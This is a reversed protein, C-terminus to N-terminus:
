PTDVNEPEDSLKAYRCQQGQHGRRCISSRRNSRVRRGTLILEASAVELPLRDVAHAALLGRRPVSALIKGKRLLEPRRAVAQPAADLGGLVLVEDEPQDEELVDGVRKLATARDELDRRAVLGAIEMRLVLVLPSLDELTTAM